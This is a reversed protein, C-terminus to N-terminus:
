CVVYMFRSKAYSYKYDVNIAGAAVNIYEDALAIACLFMIGAGNALAQM